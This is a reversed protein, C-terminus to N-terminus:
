NWAMKQSRKQQISRHQRHQNALPLYRRNGFVLDEMPLLVPSVMDDVSDM